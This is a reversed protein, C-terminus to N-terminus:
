GVPYSRDPSGHEIGVVACNVSDLARVRDGHLPAKKLACDKAAILEAALSPQTGKPGPPNKNPWADLCQM